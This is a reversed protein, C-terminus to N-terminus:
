TGPEVVWVRVEATHEADLRVPVNYIGLEKIPQELLIHKEEVPINREQLEAAIRAAGVSGFLHGEESAKEELTLSLGELGKVVKAVQQSRERRVHEAREKAHEVRRLADPTVPCAIGEPFLYNRAFGPRVSVVKGVAGLNANDEILLVQITRRQRVV